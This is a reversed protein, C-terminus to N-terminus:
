LKSKEEVKLKINKQYKKPLFSKLWLSKYFVIDIEKKDLFSFYLKAAMM